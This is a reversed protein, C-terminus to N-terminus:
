DLNSNFCSVIQPYKAVNDIIDDIIDQINRWGEHDVTPNDKTVCSQTALYLHMFFDICLFANPVTECYLRKGRDFYNFDGVWGPWSVLGNVLPGVM